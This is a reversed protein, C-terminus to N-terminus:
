DPTFGLARQVAPDAYNIRNPDLEVREYVIPPPEYLGRERMEGAAVFRDVLARLSKAATEGNWAPLAERKVTLPTADNLWSGDLPVNGGGHLRAIAYPDSDPFGLGHELMPRGYEDYLSAPTTDSRYIAHVSTPTTRVLPRLYKKLLRDTPALVKVLEAAFKTALPSPEEVTFELVALIVTPDRMYTRADSAFAGDQYYYDHRSGILQLQLADGTQFVGANYGNDTLTDLESDIM